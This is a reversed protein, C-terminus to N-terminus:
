CTILTPDLTAEEISRIGGHDCGQSTLLPISPFMQTIDGDTDPMNMFNGFLGDVEFGSFNNPDEAFDTITSTSDDFIEYDVGVATSARLRQGSSTSESLKLPTQPVATSREAQWADYMINHYRQVLEEDVQLAIDGLRPDDALIKWGKRRSFQLYSSLDESVEQDVYPSSPRHPPSKGNPGCPFLYDWIVYWQEREDSNRDSYGNLRKQHEANIGNPEPFERKQCREAARLHASLAAKEDGFEM